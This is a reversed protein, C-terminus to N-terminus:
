QQAGTGVASRVAKELNAQMAPDKLHGQADFATFGNPLAVQQEVVKGGINEIISKLHSLGKAGGGAGPSSSMIVFTKGQFAERSPGGTEARSAWDIVNKLIAPLSGNYEPSAILIVNSTVMQRRLQKAKVPMGQETELDENFFPIPYDNLNIVTVDAGTKRAIEAAETVLKKNISAERTSGSIALVKVEASVIASIAMCAIFMWKWM